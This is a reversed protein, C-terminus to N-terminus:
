KAFIKNLQKNLSDLSLSNLSQKPDKQKQNNSAQYQRTEMARYQMTEMIKNQSTEMTKQNGQKYSSQRM